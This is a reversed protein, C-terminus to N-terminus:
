KNKKSNNYMPDESGKGILRLKEASKHIKYGQEMADKVYPVKGELEKMKEHLSGDGSAKVDHHKIHYKQKDETM